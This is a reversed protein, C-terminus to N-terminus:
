NVYIWYAEGPYILSSTLNIQIYQNTTKNFKWFTTYNIGLLEQAVTKSSLGFIGLSNWGSGPILQKVLADGTSNTLSGTITLNSDNKMLIFYGKNPEVLLLNSPISDNSNYVEWSHTLPNYYFIAKVNPKIVNFLSNVNSDRPIIPISVFNLGTTLNLSYNVCNSTCVPISSLTTFSYQISQASNNSSDSSNVVYYYTTSANLGTFSINHLLTNGAVIQQQTYIGSAVGYKVLSSSLENTIWSIYTSNSTLGSYQVNSIAPPTTDGPLSTSNSCPYAGVYDGNINCGPSTSQLKFKYAENIDQSRPTPNSGLFLPNTELSNLDDGTATRWAALNAYSCYTGAGNAYYINNNGIFNTVPNFFDCYFIRNSPLNVFINNNYNTTISTGTGGVLSVPGIGAAPNSNIFTNHYFTNNGANGLYNGNGAAYSAQVSQLANGWFVNNEFVTNTAQGQMMFGMAQGGVFTNNRFVNGDPPNFGQVPAGSLIAVSAYGTYNVWFYNNEFLNHDIGDRIGMGFPGLNVFMKNNRFTLYSVGGEIAMADINGGAGSSTPENNIITNNEILSNTVPLVGCGGAGYFLNFEGNGIITNGYIKSNIPSVYTQASACNDPGDHAAIVHLSSLNNYRVILNQTGLFAADTFVSNEVTINHILNYDGSPIWTNSHIGGNSIVNRVINNYYNVGGTYVANFYIANGGGGMNIRHGQGDLTINNGFLWICNDAANNIDQSLYYARNGTLTGCSTVPTGVPTSYEYAGIDYSSGQPRVIGDKDKTVGQSALNSGANISPSTSQYRYNRVLNFNNNLITGSPNIFNPNSGSISNAQGSAYAPYFLNYNGTFTSTTASGSESYIINNIATASSCGAPNFATAGSRGIIINNYVSIPGTCGYGASLWLGPDGILLNNRVVSNSGWEGLMSAGTTIITNSDFVNNPLDESASSTIFLGSYGSDVSIITNNFFFSNSTGSRLKIVGQFSSWPNLNDTYAINNTFNIFNPGYMNMSIKRPASATNYDLFKNKDIVSYTVHSIVFVNNSFADTLSTNLLFTNNYVYYGTSEVLNFLVSGSVDTLRYVNNDKIIGSITYSVDLGDAIYNNIVSNNRYNSFGYNAISIGGNLVRNDKALMNCVGSAGGGYGVIIGGNIFTNNMIVIGDATGASFCGDYPGGIISVGGPADIIANSLSINRSNAGIILARNVATIKYGNGDILINNLGSATFCDGASSVNGTLTYTNGSALAGCSGLNINASNVNVSYIILVFFLFIISKKLNM